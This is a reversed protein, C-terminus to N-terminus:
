TLILKFLSITISSLTHSTSKLYNNRNINFLSPGFYLLISHFLFARLLFTSNGRNQAHANCRLSAKHAVKIKTWVVSFRRPILKPLSVKLYPQIYVGWM